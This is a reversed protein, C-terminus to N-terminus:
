LLEPGPGAYGELLEEEFDIGLASRANDKARTVAEPEIVRRDDAIKDLLSRVEPNAARLTGGSEAQMAALKSVHAFLKTAAAQQQDDLSDMRKEITSRENAFANMAEALDIAGQGRKKAERPIATKTRDVRNRSSPMGVLKELRLTEPHAGGQHNNSAPGAPRTDPPELGKGVKSSGYLPLFNSAIDGPTLGEKILDTIVQTRIGPDKIAQLYRDTGDIEMIHHTQKGLIEGYLAYRNRAYDLVNDRYEDLTMNPRDKAYLAPIVLDLTRQAAMRREELASGESEFALSAKGRLGGISKRAHTGLEGGKGTGVPFYDMVGDVESLVYASNKDAADILTRSLRRQASNHTKPDVYVKETSLNGLEDFFKNTRFSM